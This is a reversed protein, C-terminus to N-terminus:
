VSTITTVVTDLQLNRGREVKDNINNFAFLQAHQLERTFDVGSLAKNMWKDEDRHEEDNISERSLIMGAKGLVNSSLM